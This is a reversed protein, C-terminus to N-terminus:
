APTSTWDPILNNPKALEPAADAWRDPPAVAPAAIAAFIIWPFGISLLLFVLLRHQNKRASGIAAPRVKDPGHPM